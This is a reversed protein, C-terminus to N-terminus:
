PCQSLQQLVNKVDNNISVTVKRQLGDTYTYHFPSASFDPSAAYADRFPALMAEFWQRGRCLCGNRVDAAVAATSTNPYKDDLENDTMMLCRSGFGYFNADDAMFKYILGESAGASKLAYVMGDTCCANASQMLMKYRQVLPAAAPHTADINANRRAASVLEDMRSAQIKPSRPAVVERVMPKRRWIECETMSDFPCGDSWADGGFAAAVAGSLDQAVYKQPIPACTPVAPTCTAPVVTQTESIVTVTEDDTWLNSSPRQPALLEEVRARTAAADLMNQNYLAVASDVPAPAIMPVSPADVTRFYIEPTPELFWDSFDRYKYSVISDDWVPVGDRWDVTKDATHGKYEGTVGDWLAPRTDAPVPKISLAKAQIMRPQQYQAYYVPAAYAPEADVYMPAAPASVTETIDAVMLAPEGVPAAYMPEVYCDPGTCDSGHAAVIGMICLLSPLIANRM